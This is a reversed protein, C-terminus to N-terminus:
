LLSNTLYLATSKKIVGTNGLNLPNWGTIRPMCIRIGDEAGYACVSAHLTIHEVFEGIQEPGFAELRPAKASMLVSGPRSV